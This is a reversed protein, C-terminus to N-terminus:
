KAPTSFTKQLWSTVATMVAPSVRKDRLSAYEDVEGTAAAALLHNVGPIKATEVAGANKRARALAELRDANAPPVQVDLLGQVILIPQRVDPMVKAPDFALLSQFWATDAQSRLGQPLSEWGKGTLVAQQIKAQLDITAQRDADSKGSRDLQHKVQDMNLEAGIVGMTAVLVLAAIRKDSAASLMAISGGEGHGVVAIRKPDIDKRDAMFKVAARVDEAYDALTASEARGGSQGLGRKDYRLVAFGADALASALQGFVPIGYVAEDRDAPGSGGVLVVGPLPRPPADFPKSVTGALVFGNAPIKAPEDNPRSVTVRRAAVSAIDERVVELSQSPISVRLVRGTDDGWVDGELPPVGPPM